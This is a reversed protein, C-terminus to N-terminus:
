ARVTRETLAYALSSVPLHERMVNQMLEKGGDRVANEFAAQVQARIEDTVDVITEADGLVIDATIGGASCRIKKV